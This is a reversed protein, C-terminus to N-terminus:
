KYCTGQLQQTGEVQLVYGRSEKSVRYLIEGGM